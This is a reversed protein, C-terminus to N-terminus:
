VKWWIEVFQKISIKRRIPVHLVNPVEWIQGNLFFISVNGKGMIEHALNDSLYVFLKELCKTYILFYKPYFAMHKTANSDILWLSDGKTKAVLTAVYM